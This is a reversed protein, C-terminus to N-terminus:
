VAFPVQLMRNKTLYSCVFLGGFHASCWGTLDECGNFTRWSDASATKAAVRGVSQNLSSRFFSFLFVSSFLNLPRCSKSLM